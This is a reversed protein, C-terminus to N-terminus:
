MTSLMRSKFSQWLNPSLTPKRATIIVKGIAIKLFHNYFSFSPLLTAKISLLPGPTLQQPLEHRFHQSTSNFHEPILLSNNLPILDAHDQIRITRRLYNKSVKHPSEAFGTVQIV